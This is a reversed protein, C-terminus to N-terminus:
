RKTPLRTGVLIDKAILTYKLSFTFVDIKTNWWMSLVRETNMESDLTINKGNSTNTADIARLVEPTNSIFNRIEFGGSEHIMKVDQIMKVTKDVTNEGDMM